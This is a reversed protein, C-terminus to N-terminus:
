LNKIANELNELEVTKNHSNKREQFKRIGRFILQFLQIQKEKKKISEVKNTKDQAYLNNISLSGVLVLIILKSILTKM